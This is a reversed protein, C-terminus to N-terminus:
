GGILDNQLNFVIQETQQVLGFESITKLEDFSILQSKYIFYYDKLKHINKNLSKAYIQFKIYFVELLERMTADMPAVVTISTGTSDKFIVNIKEGSKLPFFDINYLENYIYKTINEDSLNSNKIITKIMNNNISLQNAMQINQEMLDLIIEKNNQNSNDQNNMMMNNAYLNM